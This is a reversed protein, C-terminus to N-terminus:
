DEFASTHRPRRGRRGADDGEGGVRRYGKRRGTPVLAIHRVRAVGRPSVVVSPRATAGPFGGFPRHAARGCAGYGPRRGSTPSRGGAGGGEGVLGGHRARAGLGLDGTVGGGVGRDPRTAGASRGRWTGGRRAVAGVRSRRIGRRIEGEPREQARQHARLALPARHPVGGHPLHQGTRSPRGSVAPIPPHGRPPPGHWGGGGPM